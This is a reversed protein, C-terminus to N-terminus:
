AAPQRGWKRIEPMIERAFLRMSRQVDETSMAPAHFQLALQDLPEDRYAGLALMVDDPTGVAFPVGYIAANPSHRLEGVPPLPMDVGRRRYFEVGWHLAEEAEDWAQERTAAVHVCLPGSVVQQDVRRRGFKELLGGYTKWLPSHLASALHYGREAAKSISQPGMAAMWIPPGLPQVPKPRLEVNPFDYYKGKHSFKDETFCRQMFALAEYTRAFTEEKNVGFVDCEVQMPGAGIALDLRGNSLIDVAVAAEAVHLPNHLALLLVYTGLRIRETHTAVAALVPLPTCNWDDEAFHHESLWVHSFGLQEALISEALFDRYAQPLSQAKGPLNRIGVAIGIEM